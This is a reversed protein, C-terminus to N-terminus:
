KSHKPKLNRKARAEDEKKHLLKTRAEDDKGFQHAEHNPCAKIEERLTIALDKWAEMASQWDAVVANAEALAAEAQELREAMQNMRIRAIAPDVGGGGSRRAPTSNAINLGEQKATLTEYLAANILRQNLESM